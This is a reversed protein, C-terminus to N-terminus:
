RLHVAVRQATPAVGDSSNVVMGMDSNLSYYTIPEGNHYQFVCHTSSRASPVGNRTNSGYRGGPVGLNGDQMLFAM